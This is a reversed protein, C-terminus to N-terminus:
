AHLVKRKKIYQEFLVGGVIVGVGSGTFAIAKILLGTEFELTRGIIVAGLIIAGCWFKRRDEESFSAYIMSAAIGILLVNALVMTAIDPAFLGTMGVIFGGAGLLLATLIDGLKKYHFCISMAFFVAGFVVYGLGAYSIVSNRDFLNGINRRLEEACEQFSLLFLFFLILVTGAGLNHRSFHRFRESGKCFYGWGLFASGLAISTMYGGLFDLEDGFVVVTTIALNLMVLWVLFRSNCLYVLPVLVVAAVAPYWFVARDSGSWFGSFGMLFLFSMVIAVTANPISRVAYAVAAAGIAWIGFMRGAGGSIHFIQAMLGINAGFILTGLLVLAHGLKPYKGNIFWFYFGLGHASLMAAFILVIKVPRDIQNWHAAVFSIVGVGILVAGITYIISLLLQTNESKIQDLQYFDELQRGQPETLFGKELWLPIAKKLHKRFSTSVKNPEM